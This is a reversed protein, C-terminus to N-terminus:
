RPVVGATALYHRMLDAYHPFAVEPEEIEPHWAKEWEYCYYGRYGHKALVEVTEKVPVTGAGTLVYRVGTGEPRSDKLHTHRVYSGLIRYTFAPAEKGAVFTHHADWLLAVNPMGAGDLLELLTPSDTFDGHSEIIVNVGSGKAHEGLTRLGDVVRPLTNGKSDGPPIRDGFVRVYPVSLREALDIFRKGEDLQAARAKPEAEHMRASAGLDSIKLDLADLDKLSQNLRPGAFEPRKTLDMEGEIGRLEIAAYGLTAAQELIRAWPWKPCGLTSFAIPYRPGKQFARIVAPAAAATAIGHLFSRRTIPSM